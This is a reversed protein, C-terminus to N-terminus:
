LSLKTGIPYKYKLLSPAEEPKDQVDELNQGDRLSLKYVTQDYAPHFFNNNENENKDKIMQSALLYLNSQKDYAIRRPQEHLAIKTIHLKQIEDMQGIMLNGCCSMALCDPFDEAHFGSILRIEPLNVSAYFM